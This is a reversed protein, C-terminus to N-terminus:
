LSSFVSSSELHLSLRVSVAPLWAPAGRGPQGEPDISWAEDKCSTDVCFWLALPFSVNCSGRWPTRSNRRMQRSSRSSSGPMPFQMVGPFSRTWMVTLVSGLCVARGAVVLNRAQSWPMVQLLSYQAEPKGLSGTAVIACVDGRLTACAAQSPPHLLVSLQLRPESPLPLLEELGSKGDGSDAAALYLRAVLLGHVRESENGLASCGPSVSM